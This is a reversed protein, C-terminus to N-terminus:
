TRTLHMAGILRQTRQKERAGGVELSYNGGISSTFYIVSVRYM